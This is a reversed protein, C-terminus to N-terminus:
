ASPKLGGDTAVDGAATGVAKPQYAPVGASRDVGFGPWSDAAPTEAEQRWARMRKGLRPHRYWSSGTALLAIPFLVKFLTSWGYWDWTAYARSSWGVAFSAALAGIAASWLVVLLTVEFIKWGRPRAPNSIIEEITRRLGM